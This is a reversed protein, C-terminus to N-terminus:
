CINLKNIFISFPRNKSLKMFIGSNFHFSAIILLFCRKFFKFEKKSIM